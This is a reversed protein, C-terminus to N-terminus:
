FAQAAFALDPRTITLYLLKGVLTKYYSPDPLPDGNDMFLKRNPDLPTASPKTDLLSVYKVLEIAYKRQTLTLGDKNRLFEIGLYYHIPGLDKIVLLTIFRQTSKQTFLSTDVYSQKIGISILFTTLKEFWQRNAQKLGYISKKLKYFSSFSINKVKKITSLSTRGLRTHWLQSNSISALVTLLTTTPTTTSPLLYLGDHLTGFTNFAQAAFALDPRTITLYLLKGVLTKYYSPDPLPDGNDMFLKRNPDLPTASPKTDLLSVYKVLEIAYKRQTLTLGDKNRLFEIGLYYHIPGLDKI